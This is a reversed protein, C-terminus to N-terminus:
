RFLDRLAMVALLALLSWLPLLTLWRPRSATATGDAATASPDGVAILPQAVSMAQAPMPQATMPQMPMPQVAPMPVAPMPMTPMASSHMTPSGGGQGVQLSVPVTFRQNGNAFVTVVAHYTGPQAPATAIALPVFASRGRFVTAGIALWDQDSRGYAVVARKETTLATLVYEVKEGPAAQLQISDESLEVKPPKTLGLAEFLQQVAAIGSACPGPVPYTWGNAQYWRAVAGSELLVAAEKPNAHAKEALQRPTISGALVGEPFPQVPVQVRVNVIATGGNTELQLQTELPKPYAHLRRGVIRVPVVAKDFFQIIKNDQISNDAFSLWQAKADRSITGTLLRKGANSLTLNVSRDGDGVRLTGLDVTAPEARLVPRALPAPLRELFEDLGRERDPAQGAARAAAALDARGQSALFKELFGQRLLDAMAALEDRCAAALDKFNHCARGSPFTFPSAFPRTGIDMATGDRPVDGGVRNALVAGDNYCYVADDPNVHRCRSCTQIM